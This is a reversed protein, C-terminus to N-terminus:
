KRQIRELIGAPLAEKLERWHAIPDGLWTRVDSSSVDMAGTQVVGGRLEDLEGASWARTARLREMLTDSWADPGGRAGAACGGSLGVAGDLADAWGMGARRIILPPAVRVLRHADKWRHLALAQDEGMLWRLSVDARGAHDLAGRARTATDISYSEVGTAHSGAGAARRLEDDWVQADPEARLAIKLLEVRMAGDFMTAMAKHPSRSAPVFWRVVACGARQAWAEAAARSLEVHGRHVPDFSGGYLVVVGVDRPLVAPLEVEGARDGADGDTM